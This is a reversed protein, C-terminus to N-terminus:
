VFFMPHDETICDKIHLHQQEQKLNNMNLKVNECYTMIRAAALHAYYTPAPYSVSHTCRSFLHCFQYVLEELEDWNMKADDWLVRYKTPRAVGKVSHHSVLYFDLATPHVIETDVCTGVPVNLNNDKSADKPDMPFFRTHHRKQVVLFTIKPSYSLCSCARQIAKVERNLVTAFQGESVGDRFFIIHDPKKKTNKYFYMLHERTINELDEIIEVKAPQLRWCLHYKFAGEDFSATVAAISPKNDKAESSPHTVDAGMVMYPVKMCEANDNLKHNIGHLKTNVKQLINIVTSKGPKVVTNSRLCQTLCGVYLEAAQKVCSYYQGNRPIVVMILQLNKRKELIQKLSDLEKHYDLQVTSIPRPETITM